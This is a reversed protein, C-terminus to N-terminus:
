NGLGYLSRKSPLPRYEITKSIQKNQKRAQKHLYTEKPQFGVSTKSLSSKQKHQKDALM